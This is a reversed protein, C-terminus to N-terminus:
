KPGKSTYGRVAQARREDLYVVDANGRQDYFHGRVAPVRKGRDARTAVEVSATFADADFPRFGQRYRMDRLRVRPVDIFEGGVMLKGPVISASRIAELTGAITAPAGSPDMVAWTPGAEYDGCEREVHEGGAAVVRLAFRKRLLESEEVSLGSLTEIVFKGFLVSSKGDNIALWVTDGYKMRALVDRAVRRTVGFRKGERRFSAETYYSRGIFHLWHTASM